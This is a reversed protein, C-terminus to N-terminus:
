NPYKSALRLSRAYKVARKEVRKAFKKDREELERSEALREEHAKHLKKLAREHHRLETEHKMELEKVSKRKVPQNSMVFKNYKYKYIFARTLKGVEWINSEVFVDHIFYKRTVKKKSNNWSNAPVEVVVSLEISYPYDENFRDIIEFKATPHNIYKVWELEKVPVIIEGNSYLEEFTFKKRLITNIVQASQNLKRMFRKRTM